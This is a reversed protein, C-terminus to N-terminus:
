QVAGEGTAEVTFIVVVIEQGGSEYTVTYQSNGKSLMLSAESGSVGSTIVTFGRSTFASSLKNLDSATAGRKITFQVMGSDEGMGLYNNLYSSLKIDGFVESIIPGIDNKAKTVFPIDAQLEETANFKEEPTQEREEGGGTVGAGAGGLGQLQKAYDEAEKGSLGGLTAWGRLLQEAAREAQWRQWMWYGGALVAVALVVIVPILAKNKNM